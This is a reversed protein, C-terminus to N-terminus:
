GALPRVSVSVPGKETLAQVVGSVESEDASVILSKWRQSVRWGAARLERALETAERRSPLSARVEWGGAGIVPQRSLREASGQWQAALGEGAPEEGILGETPVVEPVEGAPAEDSDSPTASADQWEQESRNWHDLAFGTAALQASALADRVVLEAQRAALETDGYLFMRPGAHSVAIGWGLSYPMGSDDAPELVAKVAERAHTADSFTVTVRWDGAVADVKGSPRWDTLTRGDGDETGGGGGVERAERRKHDSIPRARQGHRIVADPGGV